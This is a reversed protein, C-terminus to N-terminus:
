TADSDDFRVLRYGELGVGLLDNIEIGGLLSDLDGSDRIEVGRSHHITLSQDLEELRQGGGGLALLELDPVLHNADVVLAAGAGDDLRLGVQDLDAGALDVSTGNAAGKEHGLAVPTTGLARGSLVERRGLALVGIGSELVLRRLLSGKQVSKIAVVVGQVGVRLRTLLHAKTAGDDVTEVREVGSGMPQELTEAGTVGLVDLLELGAKGAGDLRTVLQHGLYPLSSLDLVAPLLDPENGADFTSLYAEAIPSGEHLDDSLGLGLQLHTIIFFNALM